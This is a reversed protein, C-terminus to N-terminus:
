GQVLNYDVFREARYHRLGSKKTAVIYDGATVEYKAEFKIPLHGPIRLWYCDELEKLELPNPYKSIADDKTILHAKRTYRGKKYLNYM